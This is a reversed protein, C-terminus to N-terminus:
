STERISMLEGQVPSLGAEGTFLRRAPSYAISLAYTDFSGYSKCCFLTFFTVGERMFSVFSGEDSKRLRGYLASYEATAEYKKNLLSLLKAHCM